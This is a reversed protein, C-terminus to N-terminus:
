SAPQRNIAIRWMVKNSKDPDLQEIKLPALSDQQYYYIMKKGSGDFSQTLRDVKLKNGDRILELHRDLRTHSDALKGNKYFVIDKEALGAEAMQRHLLHISLYDYVEDPMKLQRVKKKKNYFILGRQQDFWTKEEAAQQPNDGIRQQSLKLRNSAPRMRTEAFPTKNTFLRYFGVPRTETYWIWIGDDYDLRILTNGIHNEGRYLHYEASFPQVDFAGSQLSILLLLLALLPRYIERSRYNM